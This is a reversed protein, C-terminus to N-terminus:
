ERGVVHLHCDISEPQHAGCPVGDFFGGIEPREWRLCLPGRQQKIPKSLSLLRAAPTTADFALSSDM